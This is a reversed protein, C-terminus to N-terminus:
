LTAELQLEPKNYLAFLCTKAQAELDTTSPMRKQFVKLVQIWTYIRDM